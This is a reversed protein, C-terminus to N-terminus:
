YSRQLETKPRYNFIHNNPAEGTTTVPTNRYKFLFNDIKLQLSFEQTNKDILMKKLSQKATRVGCEAWGNSQPHYPPSHLLEINHNKCFKQLESGGFPPGNDTVINTPLGFYTFIGRLTERLKNGTTSPMNKIDFWRSYADVIILFKTNTWQFFNLHIREFFFKAEKWQSLGVPSSTNQTLQCPECQKSYKEIDLDISNWWVSERALLRM